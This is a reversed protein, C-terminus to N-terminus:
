GMGGLRLSQRTARTWSEANTNDFWDFPFHFYLDFPAVRRGACPGRGARQTRTTPAGQLRESPATAIFVKGRARSQPTGFGVTNVFGPGKDFQGVICGNRLGQGAM